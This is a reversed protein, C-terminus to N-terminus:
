RRGLPAFGQGIVVFPAWYFPHSFRPDRRLALEARQLAEAPCLGAAIQRHFEVMLQATAKSEAPSQAVVLTRCGAVLFAWSLGIVGEGADIKGGATDCASLVVLEADLHLDLVERAELLGDDSGEGGPAFLLASYLPANDDIVGHTAIHVIHASHAEHKFTMERAEKGVFVESHANGYISAIRRVETEADPLAGFTRGRYLGRMETVATAGATPNAFAVLTRENKPATVPLSTTLLSLSPAYFIPWQSVLDAGAGDILIQYPLRWLPGDPIVCLERGAAISGAAPLLLLEHLRSATERYHIDRQAIQTTLRDVLRSLRGRSVPVRQVTVNSRGGKRTITFVYTAKATVAYELVVTSALAQPLALSPLFDARRVHLEPHTSMLEDTIRDLARRCRDREARLATGPAGSSLIKRNVAELAKEATEERGKEETSLSANRDVTTQSLSDRLTRARRREAAGLAGRVDGLALNTEMLDDYLDAKDEFYRTASLDSAAVARLQEVLSIANEITTRAERERELARLARAKIAEARWPSWDWLPTTGSLGRRLAEQAAELAEKPRRQILRLEAVAAYADSAACTDDETKGSEVAKTLIREAEAFKRAAFLVMAFATYNRAGCEECEHIFARMEREARAINGLALDAQAMDVLVDNTFVAHVRKGLLYARENLDRMVRFDRLARHVEAVVTDAFAESEGWGIRSATRSLDEARLLALRYDRDSLDLYTHMSLAHLSPLVDDCQDVLRASAALDERAGAGDGNVWRGLGRSMLATALADPDASRYAADVADDAVSLSEARQGNARLTAAWLALVVGEDAANGRRRAQGLALQALLRGAQLRAASRETGSVYRTIDSMTSDALERVLLHPDADPEASFLAEREEARVKMIRHALDRELTDFAALKWEPGVRQLELVWFRPLHAPLRSGARLAVGEIDLRVRVSAEDRQLLTYSWHEITPCEYNAALHQLATGFDLSKTVYPDFASLDDQGVAAVVHRLLPEIPDTAQACAPISSAACFLLVALLGRRRSTMIEM